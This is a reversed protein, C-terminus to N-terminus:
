LRSLTRLVGDVTELEAGNNIEAIYTGIHVTAATMISSIKSTPVAAFVPAEVKVSQNNSLVLTGSPEAVELLEERVRRRRFYYTKPNIGNISCWETITLGSQQCEHIQRLWEQMRIGMMAKQVKM